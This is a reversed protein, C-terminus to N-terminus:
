RGSVMARYIFLMAESYTIPRSANFQGEDIGYVYKEHYAWEIANQYVQEYSLESIGLFLASWLYALFDGRICKANIRLMISRKNPVIRNKSAWILPLYNYFRKEMKNHHENAYVPYPSGMARWIFTIADGLSIRRNWDADSRIIDDAIRNSMAWAVAEAVTSHHVSGIARDNRDHMNQNSLEETKGASGGNEVLDIDYDNFDEHLRLMAMAADVDLKFTPSDDKRSHDSSYRCEIIGFGKLDEYDVFNDVLDQKSVAIQNM